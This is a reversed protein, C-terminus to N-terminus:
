LFDVKPPRKDPAHASVSVLPFFCPPPRKGRLPHKGPVSRYNSASYHEYLCQKNDNASVKCTVEKWANEKVRIDKDSKSGIKWLCKFEQMAEVLRKDDRTM